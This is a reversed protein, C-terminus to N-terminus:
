LELLPLFFCVFLVQPQEDRSAVLKKKFINLLQSGRMCCTTILSKIRRARCSNWPPPGYPTRTCTHQPVAIAVPESPEATGYRPLCAPEQDEHTVHRSVHRARHCRTVGPLVLHCWTVCPVESSWQGRRGRVGDGRRSGEFERARAIASASSSM